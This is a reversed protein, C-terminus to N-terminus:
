SYSKAISLRPKHCNALMIINFLKNYFKPLKCLSLHHYLIIIILLSSQGPPSTTYEGALAELGAMGGAFIGAPSSAKAPLGAMGGAFIGAPSSAKAPLGAM